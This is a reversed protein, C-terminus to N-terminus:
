TNYPENQPINEDSADVNDEFDHRNVNPTKSLSSANKAMISLTTPNSNITVTAPNKDPSRSLSVNDEDESDAITGTRKIVRVKTDKSGTPLAKPTDRNFSHASHVPSSPLRSKSFGQSVSLPAKRTIDKTTHSQVIPPFADELDENEFATSDAVLLKPAWQVTKRRSSIRSRTPTNASCEQLPTRNPDGNRDKRRHRTLSIPTDAPSQSSPIVKKRTRKPTAPPPMHVGQSEPLSTHTGQTPYSVEPRQLDPSETVKRATVAELRKKSTSRTQIKSASRTQVNSTAPTRSLRRRDKPPPPADVVAPLEEKLHELEDEPHFHKRFPNLQTITTQDPTRQDPISKGTNSKRSKKKPPMAPTLSDYELDHVGDFSLRSSSSRALSPVTQTLSPQRWIPATAPTLPRRASHRRYPFTRQKLAPTRRDEFVRVNAPNKPAVVPM